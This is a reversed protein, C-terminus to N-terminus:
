KKPTLLQKCEDLLLQKAEKRTCFSNNVIFTRYGAMVYGNETQISTLDRRIKNLLYDVFQELTDQKKQALAEALDM